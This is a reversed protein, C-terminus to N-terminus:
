HHFYYFRGHADYYGNPAPAQVYSPPPAYAPQFPAPPAMTSPHSAYQQPPPVYTPQYAQMPLAAPPPMSQVMTSPQFIRQEQVAYVPPVVQQYHASSPAAVPAPPAMTSQKYHFASMMNDAMEQNQEQYCVNSAVALHRAAKLSM